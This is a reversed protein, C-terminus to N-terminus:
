FYNSDNFGAALATETVNLEPREVLMDAAKRLRLSLLYQIPSQGTAAKFDRLLSNVSQHPQGTLTLISVPERYHNELYQLAKDM